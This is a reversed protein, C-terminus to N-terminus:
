TVVGDHDGREDVFRRLWEEAIALHMMDAAAAMDEDRALLARYIHWHTAITAEVAGQEVVSQWMRARATSSSLNQILSALAANGCAELIVRHFATDAEIFAAVGDATEMRRLCDQLRDFDGAALRATALRTAAPELIRRIEHIELLSGAGMLDSVFGVGTLLLDPELTTVYTGDGVRSELVGVLALARVAERLSSRSVGFRQTLERETPLRAGATFEGSSILEKIKAIAQDTARGTTETSM